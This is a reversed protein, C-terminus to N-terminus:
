ICIADVVVIVVIVVVRIANIPALGDGLVTGMEQLLTDLAAYEAEPEAM